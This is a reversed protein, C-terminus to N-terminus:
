DNIIYVRILLTTSKKCDADLVIGFHDYTNVRLIKTINIQDFDYNFASTYFTNNMLFKTLSM